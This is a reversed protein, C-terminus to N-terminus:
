RILAGSQKNAIEEAQAQMIKQFTPDSGISMETVHSILDLFHEHTEIVAEAQHQALVRSIDAQWAQCPYLWEGIPVLNTTKIWVSEGLESCLPFHVRALQKKAFLPIGRTFVFVWDGDKEHLLETEYVPEKKGHRNKAYLPNQNADLKPIPAGEKDRKIAQSIYPIFCVGIIKGIKSYVRMDEGRIFLNRVNFPKHMEAVRIIKERFSETPSFPKPKLIAQIGKFILWIIAIGVLIKLSAWAINPIDFPMGFLFVSIILGAALLLIIKLMLSGRLVQFKGKNEGPM